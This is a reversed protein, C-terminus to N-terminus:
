GNTRDVADEFQKKTQQSLYISDGAVKFYYLLLESEGTRGQEERHEMEEPTFHRVVEIGITIEGLLKWSCIVEEDLTPKRSGYRNVNIERDKVFIDVM